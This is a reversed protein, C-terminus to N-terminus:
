KSSVQNWLWEPTVSKPRELPLGLARDWYLQSFGGVARSVGFLVTYYEYQQFGYHWLLVGSHSDVNPYPNAVKGHEKLIGPMVQYITDVVQFLEDDPMHKLAFERQCTYRPDTKRLVAHGYGPIVKKANLTEWAFETITEKTIAKGDSEFKHKLAQIWKLVEQNALGHLPGALANLGASYSLYPDSLTSGVLHTTHASANGGEHDTHICLYLRMLEDFGPDNYGLMRCFNGAYDLSQDKTVVGDHYINRYIIAAIEPLKAVVSLIDELAYNHYYKHM